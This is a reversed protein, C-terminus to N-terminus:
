LIIKTPNSGKTNKSNNLLIAILGKFTQYFEGTLGNLGPSKKTLLKKIVKEIEYGTISRNISNIDVQNLKQPDSSGLFKDTEEQNEV